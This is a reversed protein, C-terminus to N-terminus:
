NSDIKIEDNAEQRSLINTFMTKINMSKLLPTKKEKVKRRKPSLNVDSEPEVFSGASM